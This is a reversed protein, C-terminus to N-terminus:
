DLLRNQRRELLENLREQLQEPELTVSISLSNNNVELKDGYIDRFKNRLYFMREQATTTKDNLVRDEIMHQIKEYTSPYYEKQAYWTADSIDAYSLFGAVNPFEEIERCYEIYEKFTNLLEIDTKFRRPNGELIKNNTKNRMSGWIDM